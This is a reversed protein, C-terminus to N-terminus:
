LSNRMEKLRKIIAMGISPDREADIGEVTLNIVELKAALMEQIWEMITRVCVIYYSDAGHMNSLRGYAREEAQAHAAPTWYLDNFIVHGAATLNLGTQGTMLSIVLFHVDPNNQFENELRTREEFPTDGTWYIAEHGLGAAIRRVVSKYQSFILVKKNGLKSDTADQETDYLEGALEVTRDVTDHACVEKLKGIEVLISTINKQIENGADDIAKYVGELVKKYQEIATPSLEHLQTIRNIPPLEAVVDKKLRRLMISKLIERLQAVNKPTKGNHTYQNLFREESPFLDPRVWNLLAWYEGPRNLIPTGTMPLRHESTLLRVAKSRNSSTNKTYHAEDVIVFDPKSMNILDAWLWRDAKPKVHIIGKEDKTEVPPTEVRTSLIDYNIITFKPKKILFTEVAFQDPERGQMISPHQGTLNYIERAWNAKLHAPCVIVTRLDRLVAFGLAQWTKGLGMQDALLARGKALDIFEIGVRQFPRLEYGNQFKVEINSDLKLAVADLKSRREIESEVLALAKPSWVVGRGDKNATIPELNQFLRWGETLPITWLNKDRYWEAGPIDRLPFSAAKPHPVVKFYREDFDIKYEPANQYERIKSEVGLLHTVKVNPLALVSNRFSAFSEAPIRHVGTYDDRERGYITRLINSVDSRDEPLIKVNAFFGNFDCVRIETPRELEQKRRLNEAEQALRAREVEAARHAARQRDHLEVVKRDLEQRTAILEQLEREMEDLSKANESM